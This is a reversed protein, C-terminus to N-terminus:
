KSAENTKKKKLVILLIVAGAMLVIGTVTFIMTGIGGTQPLNIGNSNAILQDYYGNADVEADTFDIEVPANLLNYGSPASTEVLYYKGAKVDKVEAYGDAGSTITTIKIVNGTIGAVTVGTEGAEVPRYVEFVADPLAKVNADAIVQAFTGTASNTDYKFIKIGFTKVTENDTTTEHSNEVYPYNSYTLDVDNQIDTNLLASDTIKADYTVKIKDYISITDYDFDLKLNYGTTENAPIVTTAAKTVNATTLTTPTAGTLGYVKLNEAYALVTDATDSITFTKDTVTGDYKPVDFELTYTITTWAGVNTESATKTIQPGDTKKVTLEEGQTVTWSSGDGVPQVAGVMIEYVSTTLTPVLLYEGWALADFTAKGDAAVTVDTKAPTAATVPTTGVTGGNVLYNTIVALFEQRADKDLAAFAEPTTTDSKADLIAKVASNWSYSLTNSTSNYTIDIVKYASFKDGSTASKIVVDGTAPTPATAAFASVSLISILMIAALFATLIKKTTSKM